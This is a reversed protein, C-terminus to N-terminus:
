SVKLNWLFVEKIIEYFAKFHSIILLYTRDIDLLTPNFNAVTMPYLLLM